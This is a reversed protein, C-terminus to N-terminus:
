MGLLIEHQAAQVKPDDPDDFFGKPLRPHNALYAIQARHTRGNQLRYIPLAAEVVIRRLHIFKSKYPVDFTRGGPKKEEEEVLARLVATRTQATQKRTM